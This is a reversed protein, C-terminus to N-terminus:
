ACMRRGSRNLRLFVVVVAAAVFGVVAVAAALSLPEATTCIQSVVIVYLSCTRGGGESEEQGRSNGPFQRVKLRIRFGTYSQHSVKREVAFFTYVATCLIRAIHISIGTTRKALKRQLYPWRRSLGQLYFVSFPHSACFLPGKGQSSKHIKWSVSKKIVRM